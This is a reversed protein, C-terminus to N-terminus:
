RFSHEYSTATHPWQWILICSVHNLLSEGNSALVTLLQVKKELFYLSYHTGLTSKPKKNKKGEYGRKLQIASKDTYCEALLQSPQLLCTKHIFAKGDSLNMEGFNLESKDMEQKQLKIFNEKLNIIRLVNIVSSNEMIM